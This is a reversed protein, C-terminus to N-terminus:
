ERFAYWNTEGPIELYAGTKLLKEDSRDFFEYGYDVNKGGYMIVQVHEHANVFVGDCSLRKVIISLRALKAKSQPDKLKVIEIREFRFPVERPYRVRDPTDNYLAGAVFGSIGETTAIIQILQKAENLDERMLSFKQVLESLRDEGSTCGGCFVLIGCLIVRKNLRHAARVALSGIDM